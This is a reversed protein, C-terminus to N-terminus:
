RPIINKNFSNSINKMIQPPTAKKKNAIKFWLPKAFFIPLATTVEM